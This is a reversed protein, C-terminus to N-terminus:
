AAELDLQLQWKNNNLKKPNMDQGDIADDLDALRELCERVNIKCNKDFQQLYLFRIITEAAKPIDAKGTEWRHVTQETVELLKALNAQSLTMEQRLFRIERGLLNKKSEVLIQGITRHLGEIDKIKLNRGSPTDVIEVGGGVLWVNDLWGLHDTTDSSITFQGLNSISIQGV